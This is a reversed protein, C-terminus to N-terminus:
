WHEGAISVLTAEHYRVTNWPAPGAGGVDCQYRLLVPPASMVTCGRECLYPAVYGIWKLRVVM